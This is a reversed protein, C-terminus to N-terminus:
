QIEQLEIDKKEHLPSTAQLFVVLYVDTKKEIVSVAHLLAEESTSFDTALKEPRRIIEAGYRRSIDIIGDDDSSVYVEDILNSSKSQVISWANLPKGCFDIINKKPSERQDEELLFLQM